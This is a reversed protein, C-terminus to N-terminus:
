RLSFFVERAVKPADITTDHIAFQFGLLKHLLLKCFVGHMTSNSSLSRSVRLSIM